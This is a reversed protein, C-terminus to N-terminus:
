PPSPASVLAAVRRRADRTLPLVYVVKESRGLPELGATEARTLTRPGHRRHVLAGAADRFLPDGLVVEVRVFNAALYVGGEHGFGRDAMTVIAVHGV